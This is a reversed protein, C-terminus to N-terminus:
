TNSIAKGTGSVIPDQFPRFNFTVPLVDRLHRVLQIVIVSPKVTRTVLPPDLFQEHPLPPTHDTNPLRRLTISHPSPCRSYLTQINNSFMTFGHSMGLGIASVPM